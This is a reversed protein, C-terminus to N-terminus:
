EAGNPSGQSAASNGEAAKKAAAKKAASKKAAAKRTPAASPPPSVRRVGPGGNDASRSLTSRLEAIERRLEELDQARVFGLRTTAKEVEARVLKELLDRNARSANRLEDALKTVREGADAAVDELGAQALLSKAAEAAKTRTMRTFGSVIHVYNQVAEVAM